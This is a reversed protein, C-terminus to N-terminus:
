RRAAAAAAKPHAGLPVMDPGRDAAAWAAKRKGNQQLAEEPTYQEAPRLITCEKSLSDEEKPNQMEYGLTNGHPLKELFLDVMADCEQADCGAALFVSRYRELPFVGSDNQWTACTPMRAVGSGVTLHKRPTGALLRELQQLDREQGRGMAATRTETVGEFRLVYRSKAEVAARIAKHFGHLTFLPAHKAGKKVRHVRRGNEVWERTGHHHRWNDECLLAYVVDPPKPMAQELLQKMGSRWKFLNLDMRLLHPFISTEAYRRTFAAMRNVFSQPEKFRYLFLHPHDAVAMATAIMRKEREQVFQSHKIVWQFLAFLQKESLPMPRQVALCRLFILNESLLLGQDKRDTGRELQPRPDHASILWAEYNDFSLLNQALMCCTKRCVATRRTVEDFDGDVLLDSMEAVCRMATEHGGLRYGVTYVDHPTQVDAAACEGCSYCTYSTPPVARAVVEPSMVEVVKYWDPQKRILREDEYSLGFEPVWACQMARRMAVELPSREVRDSGQRLQDFVGYIDAEPDTAEAQARAPRTEGFHKATEVQSRCILVRQRARQRDQRLRACAFVVRSFCRWRRQARRFEPTREVVVGEAKEEGKVKKRTRGGKRKGSAVARLTTSGATTSASPLAPTDM